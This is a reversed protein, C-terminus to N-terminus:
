VWLNILFFTCFSFLLIFYSLKTTSSETLTKQGGQFYSQKM